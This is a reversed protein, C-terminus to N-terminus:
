LVGYFNNDQTAGSIWYPPWFGPYAISIEDFDPGNVFGHVFMVLSWIRMRNEVTRIILCEMTVNRLVWSSSVDGVIWSPPRCVPLLECQITAATSFKVYIEIFICSLRYQMIVAVGSFITTANSIVNRGAVPGFNYSNGTERGGYENIYM